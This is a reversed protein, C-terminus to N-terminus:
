TWATIIKGTFLGADVCVAGQRFAVLSVIFLCGQVGNRSGVWALVVPRTTSGPLPLTTRPKGSGERSATAMARSAGYCRMPGTRLQSLLEPRPARERSCCSNGPAIRSCCGPSGHVLAPSSLLSPALFTASFSSSSLSSLFTRASSVCPRPSCPPLSSRARRGEAPTEPLARFPPPPIRICITSIVARTLRRWAIRCRVRM